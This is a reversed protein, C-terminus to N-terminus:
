DDRIEDVVRRMARIVLLEDHRTVVADLQFSALLTSLRARTGVGESDTADGSAGHLILGRRAFELAELVLLSDPYLWAFALPIAVFDALPSGTPPLARPHDCLYITEGRVLAAAVGRPLRADKSGVREDGGTVANTM